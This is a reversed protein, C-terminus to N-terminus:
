GTPATFSPSRTRWRARTPTCRWSSLTSTRPYSRERTGKGWYTTYHVEHGLQRCWAAVFQPGLGVFQRRFFSAYLRQATGASPADELIDLVGVRM